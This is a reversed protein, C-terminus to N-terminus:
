KNHIEWAKEWFTDIEGDTFRLWLENILKFKEKDEETQEYEALGNLMKYHAKYTHLSSVMHTYTGVQMGVRRAVMRHIYTFWPFNYTTGFILDNSRMWTICDLKGNRYLFHNGITCCFDKNTEYKHMPQNINIIAQRTFKDKKLRNVCWEFQSQNPEPTPQIFTHYGYNSNITFDPNALKNWFKAYPQIPDLSLNGSKFWKFEGELYYYVRKDLHRSPLTLVSSFPDTLELCTVTNMEQTELGRAGRTAGTSCIEKAIQPYLDNITEGKFYEM